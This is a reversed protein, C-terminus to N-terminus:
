ATKKHCTTCQMQLPGKSAPNTKKAETHCGTCARHFANMNTMTILAPSSEHKIQPIADILKPKLGDRAHCDRCAAVGAAKPDTKFLEATLTTTRGVPWSTKLPPRKALETDTQATHHCSICAIAEGKVINYEGANHKVHNFTVTGLKADKGLTVVDPMKPEDQAEAKASESASYFFVAVSATIFATLLALQLFQRM